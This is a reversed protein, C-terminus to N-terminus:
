LFVSEPYDRQLIKKYVKQAEGDARWINLLLLCEGVDLKARKALLVMTDDSPFSAEKRYLAISSRTIDIKRALNSDTVTKTRLKWFDLFKGLTMVFCTITLKCKVALHSPYYICSLTSRYNVYVIAFHVNHQTVIDDCVGPMEVAEARLTSGHLDDATVM